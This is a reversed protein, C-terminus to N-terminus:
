FLLSTYEGLAPLDSIESPIPGSLANNSFILKRLSTSSINPSLTGSFINNELYLSTLRENNELLFGPVTGTLENGGLFIETLNTMRSWAEPITGKLRQRSLALRELNSLFLIDLPLTGNINNGTNNGEHVTSGTTLFSVRYWFAFM